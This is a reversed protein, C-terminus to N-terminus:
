ASATSLGAVAAVAGFHKVFLDRHQRAKEVEMQKTEITRDLTQLISERRLELLDNERM